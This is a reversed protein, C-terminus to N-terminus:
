LVSMGAKVAKAVSVLNFSLDPVYLVDYLMCNKNMGESVEVKLKINGKGHARVKYGDGVQIEQADKVYQLEVFMSEDNCMHCTAGSDIIWKKEDNDSESSLAHSVVVFGIDADSDSSGNNRKSKTKQLINANEKFRNRRGNDLGEKRKLEECNRRIHGAKGCHYCRVQSNRSNGYQKGAFVKNDTVSTSNFRGYSDENVNGKEMMKREVHLLRETVIELRPVEASAELATVLMDYSPPLSALLHVVRDEEEIPDGIVSLEEFIETMAKVHEQVPKDNRLKLGYLKRRLALKNAWTKKQFQESLKRWVVAPDQPDGILYLLTPQISLVIIALARDREVIYRLKADEAEPIVDIGNVINWLGEKMLAMKCQIKWTHYNTENLAIMNTKTEAM